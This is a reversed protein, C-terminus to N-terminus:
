FNLSSFSGSDDSSAEDNAAGEGALQTTESPKSQTEDMANINDGDGAPTV